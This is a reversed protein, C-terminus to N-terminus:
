EVIVKLPKGLNREVILAEIELEQELNSIPGVWVKHLLSTETESILIRSEVDEPLISRILDLKRNAGSENRFAGVQLYYSEGPPKMEIQRVLDPHNVEDLAEVVVPAIGKDHFGLAKAAAYSLDILRDDHFPGRDNVRVQISRGNDLNTVKVVTPLPLSKHAATMEFMDYVEGMATLRGHFKTGYWSSIGIELYGLNSAMVQYRKGFVEYEYPGVRPRPNAKAARKPVGAEPGADRATPVSECGALLGGLVLCQVLVILVFRSVM